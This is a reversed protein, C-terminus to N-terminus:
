ISYGGDLTFVQGTLYNTSILIKILESIEEPKGLRKAPIIELIKNRISEPIDYFMGIDFYGPAIVNVTINDKAVEKALSKSLGIIGAKSAVYNAAGAIGTFAVYSSINIIRGFKQKTMIPLVAKSFNFCGTLNTQIVLNWDEDNMKLITKDNHIGANNILLDVRGFRDITKKVVSKVESVKTIDCKMIELNNKKPINKCINQVDIKNTNYTIVLNFNSDIMSSVLYAGFGKSAGTIIVTKNTNRKL